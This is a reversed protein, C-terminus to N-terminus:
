HSAPPHGIDHLLATARFIKQHYEDLLNSLPHFKATDLNDCYNIVGICKQALYNTGLCHQFRTHTAGPYVMHAPGLQKVFRLRLMEWSSILDLEWPAFLIPGHVPDQIAKQRTHSEGMALFRAHDSLRHQIETWTEGGSAKASLIDEEPMGAIRILKTLDNDISNPM